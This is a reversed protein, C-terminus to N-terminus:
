RCGIPRRVSPNSDGFEWLQSGVADSKVGPGSKLRMPERIDRRGQLIKQIERLADDHLKECTKTEIASAIDQITFVETPRKIKFVALAENVQEILNDKNM